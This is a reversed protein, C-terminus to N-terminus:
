CSSEIGSITKKSELDTCQGDADGPPETHCRGYLIWQICEIEAWVNPKYAMYWTM